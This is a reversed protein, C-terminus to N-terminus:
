GAPYRVTVRNSVLEMLPQDHYSSNFAEYVIEYDRSGSPFEYFAELRVKADLTTGSALRVFDDDRPPPRKVMPGTFPIRRGQETIVFVNYALASELATKQKELYVARPSHNAFSLIATLERGNVAASFEVQVRPPEVQERDLM